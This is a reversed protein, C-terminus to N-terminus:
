PAAASLTCSNTATNFSATDIGMWVRSSRKVETCACRKKDSTSNRNARPDEFNGYDTNMRPKTMEHVREFEFQGDSVVARLVFAPLHLLGAGAHLLLNFRRKGFQEGARRPQVTRTARVG